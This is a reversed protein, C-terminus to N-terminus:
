IFTHHSHCILYFIDVFLHFNNKLFFWISIRFKFLVTVLIFIDNALSFLLKSNTSSDTFIMYLNHLRFFCFSFLILFFSCLRLSIHSVRLCVLMHMFSTGFLFSFFIYFSIITLYMEFKILFCSDVCRLFEVFEWYFSHLSIVDLCMMTLRQFAFIFLFDKFCYSFYSEDCVLFSVASKEDSAISVLPCHPLFHWFFFFRDVLFLINLLCLKCFILASYFCGLIFLFLGNTTFNFLITFSTYSISWCHPNLNKLNSLVFSPLFSLSIFLTHVPCVSFLCQSSPLLGLRTFFM